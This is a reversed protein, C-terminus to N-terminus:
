MWAHKKQFVISIIFSHGMLKFTLWPEMEGQFCISRPASGNSCQLDMKREKEELVGAKKDQTIQKCQPKNM